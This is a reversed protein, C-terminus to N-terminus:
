TRASVHINEEQQQLTLKLKSERHDKVAVVAGYPVNLATHQKAFQMATRNQLIRDRQLAKEKRARKIVEGSNM